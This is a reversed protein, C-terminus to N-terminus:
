VRLWVRHQTQHNKVPTVSPKQPEREERVTSTIFSGAGCLLFCFLMIAIKATQSM